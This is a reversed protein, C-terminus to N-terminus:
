GVLFHVRERYPTPRVATPGRRNRAARRWCAKLSDALPERARGPGGARGQPAARTKQCDGGDARPFRPADPTPRVGGVSLRNILRNITRRHIIDVGAPHHWGVLRCKPLFDDTPDFACAPHGLTSQDALRNLEHVPLLALDQPDIVIGCAGPTRDDADASFG